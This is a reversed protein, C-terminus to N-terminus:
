HGGSIRTEDSPELHLSLSVFDRELDILTSQTEGLHSVFQLHSTATEMETEPEAPLLSLKSFDEYDKQWTDAKDTKTTFYNGSKLDHADRCTFCVRNM